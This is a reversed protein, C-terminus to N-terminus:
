FFIFNVHVVSYISYFYQKTLLEYYSINVFVFKKYLTDLFDNFWVM